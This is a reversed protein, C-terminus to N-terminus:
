GVRQVVRGDAEGGGPFTSGHYILRSVLARVTETIIGDSIQFPFVLDLKIMLGLLRSVMERGYRSGRRKEM